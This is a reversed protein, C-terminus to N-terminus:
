GSPITTSNTPSIVFSPSSTPSSPRCPACGPTSPPSPRAHAWRPPRTVSHMSRRSGRAGCGRVSRRAILTADALLTEEAELVAEEGVDDIGAAAIEQLQFRLLDVERARAREDGGLTTSSPTWPECRRPAARHDALARLAHDGAFRDLADRQVAPDLLTQHAHQGHLDVLSAGLEALETVTVLRGDVYARSRGDRPVVGRARDRHGDDPDVFRGEVRAEDAGDRVLSADARSGVLLELAEVLLTKGAGTEGTIATMGPMVVLDLDAVIGLDVVHLEALM